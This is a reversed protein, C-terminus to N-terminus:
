PAGRHGVLFQVHDNGVEAPLPAVPQRHGTAVFGRALAVQALLHGAVHELSHHQGLQLVLPHRTALRREGAVLVNCHDTEDDRLDEAQGAQEGHQAIRLDGIHEDEAGVVNPHFSAVAGRLQQRRQYTAIAVELPDDVVRGGRPPPREVALVREDIQLQLGAHPEMALAEIDHLTRQDGNTASGHEAHRQGIERSSAHEVVTGDGQQLGRNSGVHVDHDATAHARALGGQQPRQHRFHALVVHDHRHLGVELQVDGVQTAVAVHVGVLRTGLVLSPAPMEQWSM